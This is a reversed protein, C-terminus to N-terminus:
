PALKILFGDIGDVVNMPGRGLEGAATFQGALWINGQADTAVDAVSDDGIGGYHQSWLFQGSPALKAVWGDYSGYSKMYAGGAMHSNGKYHGVVIVNGQRDAAIGDSLDYDPGAFRYSWQHIGDKDWKAVGVDTAGDSTFIAGGMSFSGDYTATLLLSGEGDIAISPLLADSRAGAGKSWVHSGDSGFRAVLIDAAAMNVASIKGGGVDASGIFTAVLNVQDGAGIVVGGGTDDDVDGFRLSWQHSGTASVKLLFGDTRGASTLTAGGYTTSGAFGGTALISGTSDVAIASIYDDGGGGYRYAARYAGDSGGLSLLFLDGNGASTLMNGGLTISGYFSGGVWVNGSRDLAIGFAGDNGTGGFSKSWLHQGNSDFKAVYFDSMGATSLLGGGLDLPATMQGTVYVNGAADTAVAYAGDNDTGGLRVVNTTAGPKPPPMTMTAMDATGMDPGSGSEGPGSCGLLSAATLFISAARRLWRSGSRLHGSNSHGSSLQYTRTM